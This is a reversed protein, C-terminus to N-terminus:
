GAEARTSWRMYELLRTWNERVPIDREEAIRIATEVSEIGAEYDKLAYHTQAVFYHAQPDPHTAIALYSEMASLARCYWDNGPEDSQREGELYYLKALMHLTTAEMAESVYPVQDLVTEYHEITRAPQELEWYVYALQHHMIGLENKNYRSPRSVMTELTSLADTYEESEILGLVQQLKKWTKSDVHPVRREESARDAAQAVVSAFPNGGGVSLVFFGIATGIKAFSRFRM